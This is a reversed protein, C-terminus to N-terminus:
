PLMVPLLLNKIFSYFYIVYLFNCLQDDVKVKDCVVGLSRDRKRREKEASIRCRGDGRDEAVGKLEVIGAMVESSVVWKCQWGGHSAPTSLFM